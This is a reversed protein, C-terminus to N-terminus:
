LEEVAERVFALAVEFAVIPIVVLLMVYAVLGTTLAIVKSMSVGIDVDSPFFRRIGSV